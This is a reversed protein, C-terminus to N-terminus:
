PLPSDFKLSKSNKGDWRIKGHVVMNTIKPQWEHEAKNVAKQIQEPTREPWGKFVAQLFRPVLEEPNAALEEYYIGVVPINHKSAAAALRNLARSAEGVHVYAGLPRVGVSSFRKVQHRAAVFEDRFVVVLRPESCELMYNLFFTGTFAFSCAKMGWLSSKCREKMLDTMSAQQEPTLHNAVKPYYWHGGLIDWSLVVARDDEYQGKPNEPYAIWGDHYAEGEIQASQGMNVGANHLIGAVCSTGGCAFGSVMISRSTM